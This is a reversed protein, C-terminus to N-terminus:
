QTGYNYHPVGADKTFYGVICEDDEDDGVRITESAGQVTVAMSGDEVCVLTNVKALELNGVVLRVLAANKAIGNDRFDLVTSGAAISRTASQGLHTSVLEVGTEYTTQFGSLLHRRHFGESTGRIQGSTVRLGLITTTAEPTVNDLRLEGVDVRFALEDASEGEAHYSLGPWALRALGTFQKDLGLAGVPASASVAGVNVDIAVSEDAGLTLSLFPGTTAKEMRFFTGEPAQVGVAETLDVFFTIGADNMRFASTIHGQMRALDSVKVGLDLGIGGALLKSLIDVGALGQGLDIEARLGEADVAVKIPTAVPAGDQGGYRFELAFGGELTGLFLRVNVAAVTQVCQQYVPDDPTRGDLACLLTGPVGLEASTALQGDRVAQVLAGFFADLSERYEDLDSQDRLELEGLPLQQTAAVIADENDNLVQGISGMWQQLGQLAAIAATPDAAEAMAVQSDLSDAQCGAALLVALACLPSTKKM